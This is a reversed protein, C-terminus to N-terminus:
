TSPFVIMFMDFHFNHWRTSLVGSKYTISNHCSDTLLYRGSKGSVIMSHGIHGRHKSRKSCTIVRLVTVAICNYGEIIFPFGYAHTDTVISAPKVLQALREELGDGLMETQMEIIDLVLAFRILKIDICKGHKGFITALAYRRFQQTGGDLTGTLTPFRGAQKDVLVIRTGASQILPDAETLHAFPWKYVNQHIM